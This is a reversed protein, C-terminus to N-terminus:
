CNQGSGDVYWETETGDGGLSSYEYYVTIILLLNPFSVGFLVAVADPEASPTHTLRVCAAM